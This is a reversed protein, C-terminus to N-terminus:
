ASGRKMEGGGRGRPGATKESSERNQLFDRSKERTKEPKEPKEPKEAAAILIAACAFGWYRRLAEALEFRGTRIFFADASFVILLYVATLVYTRAPYRHGYGKDIGSVVNLFSLYIHLPVLCTVFVCLWAELRKM